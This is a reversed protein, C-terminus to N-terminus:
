RVRVVEDRAVEVAGEVDDVAVAFVVELEFKVEVLLAGHLLNRGLVEFIEAAAVVVGLLNELGGVVGDVM